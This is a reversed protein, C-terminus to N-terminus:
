HVHKVFITIIANQLLAAKLSFFWKTIAINQALIVVVM